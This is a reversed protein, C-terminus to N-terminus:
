ISLLEEIMKSELPKFDLYKMLFREIFEFRLKDNKSILLEGKIAKWIFSMPASNLLKVDVPLHMKKELEVSLRLEYELLVDVLNESVYVAVDVDRFHSTLFSGHLYAFIIKKESLIKQMRFFKKTKLKGTFM